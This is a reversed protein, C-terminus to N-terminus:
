AFNNKFEQEVQVVIMRGIEQAIYNTVDDSNLVDLLDTGQPYYDTGERAIKYAVAYPNISLGKDQVWDNIFTSGAWGVWAKLKQPDQDANPPRGEELYQTYDRGWIQNDIAHVNDEWEGSARMGLDRFKPILLLNIVDTIIREIEEKPIEIAM